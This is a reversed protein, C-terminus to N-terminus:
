LFMSHQNYKQIERHVQFTGKILINYFSSSYDNVIHSVIAWGNIFDAM